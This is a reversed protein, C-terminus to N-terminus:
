IYSSNTMKPEPMQLCIQRKSRYLNLDSIWSKYTKSFIRSAILCQEKTHRLKQQTEIVYEAQEITKASPLDMPLNLIDRGTLLVRITYDGSKM